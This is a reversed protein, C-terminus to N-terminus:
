NFTFRQTALRKQYLNAEDLPNRLWGILRPRIPHKRAGIPLDKKETRSKLSIKTHARLFARVERKMEEQKRFLSGTLLWAKLFLFSDLRGRPEPLLCLGYWSRSNLHEKLPYFIGRLLAIYTNISSSLDVSENSRSSYLHYQDLLPLELKVGIPGDRTEWIRILSHHSSSWALRSM